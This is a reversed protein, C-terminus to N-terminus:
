DQFVGWARHRLDMNAILASREGYRSSWEAWNKLAASLGRVGNGFIAPWLLRAFLFFPGADSGEIRDVQRAARVGTLWEFIAAVDQLVLYACLNPPQGPGFKWFEEPAIAGLKALFDPEQELRATRDTFDARSIDEVRRGDALIMQALVAGRDHEDLKNLAEGLQQAKEKVTKLKKIRGQTIARSDRSFYERLDTCSWEELIHPLLERRRACTTRPLVKLLAGALQEWQSFVM